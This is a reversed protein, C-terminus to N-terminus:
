INNLRDKSSKLFKFKRSYKRSGKVPNVNNSWEHTDFFIANSCKFHYYRKHIDTFTVIEVTIYM